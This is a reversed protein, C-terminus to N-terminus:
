EQFDRDSFYVEAGLVLPVAQKKGAVRMEGTTASGARLRQEATDKTGPVGLPVGRALDGAPLPRGAAEVAIIQDFDPPRNLVHALYLDGEKGFLVYELRAPRKRLPVLKRKVIVNTVTATVDRAVLHSEVEDDALLEFQDRFLTGVISTLRAPRDPAPPFLDTLVYPVPSLSYFTSQPHKTRAKRYAKLVEDPLDVEMVVQHGHAPMFMALHSFYLTEDGFVIVGHGGPPDHPQGGHAAHAGHDTM